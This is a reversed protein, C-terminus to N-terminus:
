PGQHLILSILGMIVLFNQIRIFSSVERILLAYAFTFNLMRVITFKLELIQVGVCNIPETDLNKSLTHILNVKLSLKLTLILQRIVLHHM